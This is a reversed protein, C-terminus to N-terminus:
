VKPLVINFKKNYNFYDTTTETEVSDTIAKLTMSKLHGDDSIVFGIKLLEFSMSVDMGLIKSYFESSKEKPINLEYTDKDIKSVMDPNNDIYELYANISKATDIDGVQEQNLENVTFNGSPDKMYMKAKGNDIAVYYEIAQGAIEMTVMSKLGSKIDEIKVNTTSTSTQGNAKSNSTINIEMSDADKTSSLCDTLRKIDKDGQNIVEGNQNNVEGGQNIVGGSQNNVEGGQNKVSNSCGTLMGSAIILVSIALVLFKKM